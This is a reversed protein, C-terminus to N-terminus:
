LYYSLGFFLNSSNLSFEFTNFSSESNNRENESKGTRYGLAGISTELALNKNLMLTLGPRIGFFFDNSKNGNLFNLETEFHSYRAEGQIFLALKKGIGKYYRVFPFVQYSNTTIEDYDVNNNNVGDKRKSRSYGLGIGLFLNDNIAYAYSPNISFTFTKVEGGDSPRKLESNTNRLSLNINIFQSGKEFTIKDSTTNQDNNQANAFGIILMCLFLTIKKM